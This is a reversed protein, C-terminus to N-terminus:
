TSEPLNDLIDELMTRLAKVVTEQDNSSIELAWRAAAV